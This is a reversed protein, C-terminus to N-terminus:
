RTSRIPMPRVRVSNRSVGCAHHTVEEGVHFLKSQSFRVPSFTGRGTSGESATGPRTPEDLSFQHHPFRGNMGLSARGERALVTSSGNFTYPLSFTIHAVRFAPHVVRLIRRGLLFRLIAHIRRTVPCHFGSSHGLTRHHAGTWATQAVKGVSDMSFPAHRCMKNLWRGDSFLRPKTKAVGLPLM